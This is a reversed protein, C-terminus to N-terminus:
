FATIDVMEESSKSSVNQSPTNEDNVEPSTEPTKKAKAVPPKTKPAKKKTLAAISNMFAASANSM